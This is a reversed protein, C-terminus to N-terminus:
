DPVVEVGVVYGEGHVTKIIQPKRADERLLRRLRSIRGDIGPDRGDRSRLRL